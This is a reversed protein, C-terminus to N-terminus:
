LSKAFCLGTQPITFSIKTSPNFPNPYSQYLHYENLSLPYKLSSNSRNYFGYYLYVAGCYFGGAYQIPAGVAFIDDDLDVQYSFQDSEGGDSALIKSLKTWNSNIRKYIYAAGAGNGNQNDHRVGILAYNNLLSVSFGFAVTTVPM